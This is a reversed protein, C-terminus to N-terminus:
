QSTTIHIKNKIFWDNVEKNKIKNLKAPFLNYSSPGLSMCMMFYVVGKSLDEYAVLNGQHSSYKVMDVDRLKPNQVIPNSFYEYFKRSITDFIFLGNYNNMNGNKFYGAGSNDDIAEVFMLLRNECTFFSPVCSFGANWMGRIRNDGIKQVLKLSMDKITGGWEFLYTRRIPKTDWTTTIDAAIYHHGKYYAYACYNWKTSNGDDISSCHFYDETFNSFSNFDKTMMMGFRYITPSTGRKIMGFPIKYEGDILNNYAPGPALYNEAPFGNVPEKQMWASFDNKNLYSKKISSWKVFDFSSAVGFGKAESGDNVTSLLFFKDKYKTLFNPFYNIISSFTSDVELSTLNLPVWFEFPNVFGVIAGPIFWNLVESANQGESDLLTYTFTNPTIQSVLQLVNTYDINGNLQYMQWYQIPISNLTSPVPPLIIDHDITIIGKSNINSKMIIGGNGVTYFTYGDPSHISKLIYNQNLQNTTTRFGDLTRIGISHGDKSGVVYGCNSNYFYVSTYNDGYNSNNLKWTNGSNTTNIMDGVSSVAYGNTNNTFFLSQVDGYIGSKQSIWPVGSNSTHIIVGNAGGIFINTTNIIFISYLNNSTISAVINWTKGANESKIITGSDGIAVILSNSYAVIANLNKTTNSRCESWTNGGDKSKIITGGNGCAFGFNTGYISVGNLQNSTGSLKPIWTNGSDKTMLVIGGTGVIIGTTSSTFYVSKLDNSVNSNLTTWMSSVNLVKLPYKDFTTPETNTFNSEKILSPYFNDITKITKNNTDNQANVILSQFLLFLFLAIKNM